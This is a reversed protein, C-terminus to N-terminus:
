PNLGRYREATVTCRSKKIVTNAVTIADSYSLDWKTPRGDPGTVTLRTGTRPPPTTFYTPHLITAMVHYADAPPQPTHQTTNM